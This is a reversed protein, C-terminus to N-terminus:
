APTLVDLAGAELWLAVPAGPDIAIVRDDVHLRDWGRITVERASRTPLGAPPMDGGDLRELYERLMGRDAATATVVAFRGDSSDVNSALELRPGVSQMNMVEVLLLSGSLEEGDLSMRCQRPELRELADLYARVADPIKQRVPAADAGPTNEHAAIGAAILGGGVAELFTIEEDPLRVRGLDLPRRRATHWGAAVDHPAGDIGLSRAVNNATGLPLVALPVGRGALARAAAAVTGDGGAAVVLDASGDLLLEPDLHREVVRVLTHGAGTVANRLRGLGVGDGASQSYFLVVDM